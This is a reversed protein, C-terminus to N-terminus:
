EIVHLQRLVLTIGWFCAPLTLMLFSFAIGLKLLAPGLILNHDPGLFRVSLEVVWGATYFLNILIPVVFIVLLPEVADEGPDLKGSWGALVHVLVLSVLGYIGIIANYTVRRKEWWLIVSLSTPTPAPTEFLWEVLKKM